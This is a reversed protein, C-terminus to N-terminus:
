IGQFVKRSPSGGSVSAAVLANGGDSVQVHPRDDDTQRRTKLRQLTLVGEQFIQMMRGAANALRSEEVIPMGGGGVRGVLKMAASHAAALQHCLM